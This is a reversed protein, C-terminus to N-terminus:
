HGGFEKRIADIIDMSADISVTVQLSNTSKMRGSELETKIWGKSKDPFRKALRDQLRELFEDRIALISKRSANPFPRAAREALANARELTSTHIPQPKMRGSELETKISARGERVYCERGGM